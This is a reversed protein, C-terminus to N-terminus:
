IKFGYNKSLQHNKNTKKDIESVHRGQCFIPPYYYHNVLKSNSFHIDYNKIKNVITTQFVEMAEQPTKIFIAHNMIVKFKDYNIKNLGKLPQIDTPSIAPLSFKPPIIWGGFYCSTTPPEPLIDSLEADAELIINNSSKRNYIALLAKRHSGICGLKSLIKDPKTNYRTHLDKLVLENSSLYEPAIWVVEKIKSLSSLTQYKNGFEGQNCIIFVSYSM